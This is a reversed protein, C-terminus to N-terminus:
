LSDELLKIGMPFLSDFEVALCGLAIEQPNTVWRLIASSLVKLNTPSERLLVEFFKM